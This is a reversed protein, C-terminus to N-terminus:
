RIYQGLFDLVTRNESHLVSYKLALSQRAKVTFVLQGLIQSTGHFMKKLHGNMNEFGFCSYVWLPGWMRVFNPLHLLYHFNIKCSEKGYFDPMHQYFYALATGCSEVSRIFYRICAPHAYFVCAALLPTCVRSSSLTSCNSSLLFAAM